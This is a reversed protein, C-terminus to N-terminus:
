YHIVASMNKIDERGNIEAGASIILIYKTITAHSWIKNRMQHTMCTKLPRLIDSRFVDISGTNSTLGNHLYKYLLQIFNTTILIFPEHANEQWKRNYRNKRYDSFIRSIKTM